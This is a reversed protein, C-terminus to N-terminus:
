DDGFEFATYLSKGIDHRTDDLELDPTSTASIASSAGGAGLAQAIFWCFNFFFREIM